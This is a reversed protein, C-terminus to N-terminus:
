LCSENHKLPAKQLFTAVMRSATTLLLTYEEQSWRKWQMACHKGAGGLPPWQWDRAVTTLLKSLSSALGGDEGFAHGLELLDMTRFGNCSVRVHKDPQGTLRVPPPSSWLLQAAPNSLRCWPQYLIIWREKGEARLCFCREVCGSDVIGGTGSFKSSISATDSSTTEIDILDKGLSAQAPHSSPQLHWSKFSM